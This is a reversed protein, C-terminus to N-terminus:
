DDLYIVGLIDYIKVYTDKKVNSTGIEAFIMEIVTKNGAANNTVKFPGSTGSTSTRATDINSIAFTRAKYANFSTSNELYLLGALALTKEFPNTTNDTQTDLYIAGM